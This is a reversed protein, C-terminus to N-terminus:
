TANQKKLLDLVENLLIEQKKLLVEQEHVKTKLDVM